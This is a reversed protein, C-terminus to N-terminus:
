EQCVHAHPNDCYKYNALKNGADPFHATDWTLNGLGSDQSNATMGGFWQVDMVFGDIPFKNARLTALKNDIESWNEFGWESIWLGFMKKPPVPPRGTLEMYDQRVDALSPGTMLYWRIQDGWMEGKWPTVTFDWQQKQIQDMFLGYNHNDPGVAYLVPIQVNAIAGGNWGKQANGFDNGPTRVRGVWDGDSAGVPDKWQAGLGYVNQLTEPTLTIGKWAQSLNIPCLTHLVFNRIKDTATVCLTTTNVSLRLEPTEVTSGNQSVSSPGPYNTKFVQPTTFIPQNVAPGSGVASLEFHALDDDLLEIILYSNGSVFKFRNLAASISISSSSSSVNNSSTSNISSTSNNFSSASSRSSNAVGDCVGLDTWANQWAWGVGPEYPGGIGCWGGVTCQFAEGINQVIAGTTVTGTSYSPVGTCNYAYSHQAILGAISSSVIILLNKACLFQRIKM